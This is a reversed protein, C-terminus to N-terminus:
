VGVFCLCVFVNYAEVDHFRDRPTWKSDLSAFIQVGARNHITERGSGSLNSVATQQPELANRRWVQFGSAYCGRTTKDLGSRKIRTSASSLAAEVVRYNIGPQELEQILQPLIRTDHRKALGVLAEERTDM